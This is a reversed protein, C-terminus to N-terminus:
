RMVYNPAYALTIVAAVSLVLAVWMVVRTFKPHPAEDALTKIRNDMYRIM